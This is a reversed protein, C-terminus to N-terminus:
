NVIFGYQNLEVWKRISSFFIIFNIWCFILKLTFINNKSFPFIQSMFPGVFIHCSFMKEITTNLNKYHPIGVGTPNLLNCLINNM